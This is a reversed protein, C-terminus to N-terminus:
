IDYPRRANERTAAEATPQEVNNPRRRRRCWLICATVSALIIMVLVVMLTIVFPNRVTELIDDKSSSTANAVASTTENVNFGTTNANM